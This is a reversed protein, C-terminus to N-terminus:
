RVSLEMAIIFGIVALLILWCIIKEFKSLESPVDDRKSKLSLNNKLEEFLQIDLLDLMIDAIEMKETDNDIDYEAADTQCNLFEVIERYKDDEEYQYVENNYSTKSTYPGKNAKM